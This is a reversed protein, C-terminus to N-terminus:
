LLDKIADHNWVSHTSTRERVELVEYVAQIKRAMDRDMGKKILYDGIDDVRTVHKGAQLMRDFLDVIADFDSAHMPPTVNIRGWIKDLAKDYPHM